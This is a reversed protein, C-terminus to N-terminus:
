HRVDGVEEYWRMRTGIKARLKWAVSKPEAEMRKALEYVKEAVSQRTSSDLAEYRGVWQEVIALNTTATHYLGWDKNALGLLHDV